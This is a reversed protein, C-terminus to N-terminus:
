QLITTADRILSLSPSITLHGLLFTKNHGNVDSTEDNVSGLIHTM